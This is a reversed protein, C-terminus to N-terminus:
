FFVVWYMSIMAGERLSFCSWSDLQNGIECLTLGSFRSVSFDSMTFLPSSSAGKGKMLQFGSQWSLRCHLVRFCIIGRDCRWTFGDRLDSGFNLKLKLKNECEELSLVNYCITCYIVVLLLFVKICLIITFMISSPRYWIKLTVTCFIILLFM